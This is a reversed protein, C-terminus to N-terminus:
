KIINKNNNKINDYKLTKGYADELNNSNSM